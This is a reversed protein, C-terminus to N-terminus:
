TRIQRIVLCVVRQLKMLAEVESGYYLTYSVADNLDADNSETWSFTPTLGTVEDLAPTLLTIATPVSNESNTWFLSYLRSLKVEM